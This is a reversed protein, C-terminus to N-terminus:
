RNDKQLEMQRKRKPLYVYQNNDEEANYDFPDLTAGGTRLAFPLDSNTNDENEMSINDFKYPEKRRKRNESINLHNLKVNVRRTLYNLPPFRNQNADNEEINQDDINRRLSNIQNGIDDM